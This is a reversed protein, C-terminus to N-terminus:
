LVKGWARWLRPTAHHQVLVGVLAHAWYTSSLRMDGSMHMLKVQVITDKVYLLNVM